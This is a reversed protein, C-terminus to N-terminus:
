EKVEVCDGVRLGWREFSGAEAELAFHSRWVVRSIRWARLTVIRLVVGDRDCFAVDLPFRMGATHVQRCPQLVMAGRFHDRGALGRARRAPGRAIEASALVEGDRVLWAM